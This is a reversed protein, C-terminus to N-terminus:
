FRFENPTSEICQVWKGLAPSESPGMTNPAEIMEQLGCADAFKKLFRVKM